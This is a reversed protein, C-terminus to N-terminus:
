MEGPNREYIARYGDEIVAQTAQDDPDRGWRVDTIGFEVEPGDIYWVRLSQVRGWEEVQIRLVEGFSSVWAQDRIFAEPHDVLLVLDVDSLETPNGGALSGVLAVSAIRPNGSAWGSVRKLFAEVDM